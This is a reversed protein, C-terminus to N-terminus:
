LHNVRLSDLMRDTYISREADALGDYEEGVKANIFMEVRSDISAFGAKFTIILEKASPLTGKFWLNFPTKTTGLPFSYEMNELPFTKKVDEMDVYEISVIETVPNKPLVLNKFGGAVRWEFTTVGQLVLNTIEEAKLLYANAMLNIQYDQHDDLVRLYGKINALSYPPETPPTLITLM